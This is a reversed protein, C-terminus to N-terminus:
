GPELHGQLVTTKGPPVLVRKHQPKFGKATVEYDVTHQFSVPGKPSHIEFPNKQTVSAPRTEQGVTVQASAPSFDFSLKAPKLEAPIPFQNPGDPKVEITTTSTECYECSVTVQHRGPALALPHQALAEASRPGDDVQVYGFPRVLIQVPLPAPRAPAPPRHKFFGKEKPEDRKPVSPSEQTPPTTSV